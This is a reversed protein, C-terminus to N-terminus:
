QETKKEYVEALTLIHERIREILSAPSVVRLSGGFACVWGFFVSSAQVDAVFSYWGERVPEIEVKDGFQDFVVDLLREEVEFRVKVFDGTYMGFLAKKHRTIDFSETYDYPTIPKDELVQVAEMRDIRYHTMNRNVDNYCVLYYKDNSFVTAVPNVVYRHGDRRYVKNHKHDYDFYRFLIKLGKEIAYSIENVSYYIFENTSKTTNFAVTNQKIVAGSRSGALRAVKDVLEETKKETIFAAAQIADILIHLEPLDFSREAVWYENQRSRRSLVEYGYENLTDINSYLTRRDCSIGCEELKSLLQVSSMPHEEDTEACLIEWIKLITIKSAYLATM